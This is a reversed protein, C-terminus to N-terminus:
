EVRLWKEMMPFNPKEALKMSCLLSLGIYNRRNFNDLYWETEGKSSDNQLVIKPDINLKQCAAYIWLLAAIERQEKLHDNQIGAGVLIRRIEPKCIAIRASLKLIDGPFKIRELDYYINASEAKLGPLEENGVLSKPIFQLGIEKSFNLFLEVLQAQSLLPSPSTATQM